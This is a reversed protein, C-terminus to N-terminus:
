ATSLTSIPATVASSASSTCRTTAPAYRWYPAGRFAPITAATWCPLSPKVGAQVVGAVIATKVLPLALDPRIYPYGVFYVDQAIGFGGRAARG